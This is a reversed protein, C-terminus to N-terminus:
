GDRALVDTSVSGMPQQTGKGAVPQDHPMGMIFECSVPSVYYPALWIEVYRWFVM